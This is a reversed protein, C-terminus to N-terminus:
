NVKNMKILNLFYILLQICADRFSIYHLNHCYVAHIHTIYSNRYTNGYHRKLVNHTNSPINYLKDYLYNKSLSEIESKLYYEKPWKKRAKKFALHIINSNIFIYFMIDIAANNERNIIKIGFFINKVIYKSSDINNKIMQKLKDIEKYNKVYIGIDIDDDWPIIKNNRVCGLLTGAHLFKNETDLVDFYVYKLMNNLNHLVIKNKSEWYKISTIDKYLHYLYLIIIFLCVIIIYKM